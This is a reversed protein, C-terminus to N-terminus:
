ITPLTNIFNRVAQTITIDKLECYTKLTEYESVPLRVNMPKRTTKQKM